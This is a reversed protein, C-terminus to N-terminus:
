CKPPTLVVKLTHSHVCDQRSQRPQSGTEQCETQKITQPQANVKILFCISFGCKLYEEEEADHNLQDWAAEILHSQIKPIKKKSAIVVM